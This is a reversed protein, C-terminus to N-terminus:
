QEHAIRAHPPHGGHPVPGTHCCCAAGCCGTVQEGDDKRLAAVARGYSGQGIVEKVEYRDSIEGLRLGIKSDAALAAVPGGGDAM